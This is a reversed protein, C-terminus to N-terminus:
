LKVWTANIGKLFSRASKYSTWYSSEDCPPNIRRVKWVRKGAYSKIRDGFLYPNYNVVAMVEYHPNM